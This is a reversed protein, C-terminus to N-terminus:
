ASSVEQVGAERLAAREADTANAPTHIKIVEDLQLARFQYVFHLIETGSAFYMKMGPADGNVPFAQAFWEDAGAAGIPVLLERLVPVTADADDLKVSFEGFDALGTIVGRRSWHNFDASDKVGVRDGAKFDPTTM